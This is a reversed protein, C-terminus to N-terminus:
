CKCKWNMQVWSTCYSAVDPLEHYHYFVNPQLPIPIPEKIGLNCLFEAPRLVATTLSQTREPSLSRVWNPLTVELTLFADFNNREATWIHFLDVYNEYASLRCLAQFHDLRELSEVDFSSLGIEVSHELIINIEATTLSCLWKLFPLQNMAGLDKRLKRDKKGGKAIFESLKSTRGFLSRDLASRCHNLRCGEFADFGRISGEGRIVEAELEWYTYARICGTRILHGITLIADINRQYDSDPHSNKRKVGHVQVQQDTEAWHVPMQSVYAVCFETRTVIGTDLLVRM